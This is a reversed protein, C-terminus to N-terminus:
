DTFRLTIEGTSLKRLGDATEVVLAGFPDIDTAIASFSNDGQICLVKKGIVISHKKYYEMSATDPLAKVAKLINNCILASLQERTVTSGHETLHTAVGKLEEPLVSPYFNIGIGIVAHSDDCAECLIGSVKKNGIYIDNVWKIGCDFGFLRKIAKHVCVACLTTLFPVNSYLDNIRVKLSMYIGTGKPSHFSRNLRGRGNMQCDAVVLAFDETLTKAFRNTSDICDFVYVPLAGDDLHKKIEKESIIHEM